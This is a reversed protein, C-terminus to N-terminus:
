RYASAVGCMGDLRLAKDRIKGTIANALPMMFAGARLLDRWLCFGGMDYWVGINIYGFRGM